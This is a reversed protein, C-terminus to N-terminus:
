GGAIQIKDLFLVLSVSLIYKIHKNLSLYLWSKGGLPWYWNTKTPKIKTLLPPESQYTPYDSDGLDLISPSYKPFYGYSDGSVWISIGFTNGLRIRTLNMTKTSEKWTDM